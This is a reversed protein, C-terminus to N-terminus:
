YSFSLDWEMQQSYNGSVIPPRLAHEFENGQTRFVHLRSSNLRFNHKLISVLVYLLSPSTKTDLKQEM